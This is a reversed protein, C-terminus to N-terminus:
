KCSYFKIKGPHYICDKDRNFKAHFSKNCNVCAKLKEDGVIEEKLTILKGKYINSTKYANELEKRLSTLENM